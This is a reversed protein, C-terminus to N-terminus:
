KRGFFGDLTDPLRTGKPSGVVQVPPGQVLFFSPRVEMGQVEKNMGSLNMPIMSVKVSARDPTRSCFYSRLGHIAASCDELAAQHWTRALQCVMHVPKALKTQMPHTGDVVTRAHTMRFRSDRVVSGDDENTHVALQDFSEPDITGDLRRGALRCADALFKLELHDYIHDGSLRRLANVARVAEAELEADSANRRHLTDATALFEKISHMTTPTFRQIGSLYKGLIMDRFNTVPILAGKIKGGEFLANYQSMANGGKLEIHKLDSHTFCGYIRYDAFGDALSGTRTLLDNGLKFFAQGFHADGGTFRDMGLTGMSPLGLAKNISRPKSFMREILKPLDAENAPLVHAGKKDNMLGYTGPSMNPNGLISMAWHRIARELDNRGFDDDLGRSFRLRDQAANDFSYIGIRHIFDEAQVRPAEDKGFLEDFVDSPLVPNFAEQAAGHRRRKEMRVAVVPIIADTLYYPESGYMKINERIPLGTRREIMMLIIRDGVPPAPTELSVSVVPSTASNAAVEQTEVVVEQVETPTEAFTQEQAAAQAEAERIAKLVDAKLIRGNQGTGTIKALELGSQAAMQVATETANQTM